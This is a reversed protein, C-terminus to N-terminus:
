AEDATIAYGVGRVTVILRRTGFDELKRRLTSVNADVVNTGPDSDMDWVRSLLTERTQPQDVHLMFHELLRFERPALHIRRGKRFVTRRIRNLELDGVRLLDPLGAGTGRRALARVRALLEEFDFPKTLYDDGGADLGRVADGTSDRATLMLIPTDVGEERLRRAVALGDLKPLMIDLLIVDFERELGLKLGAEGNPAVAVDHGEEALGQRLFRCAGVDDEVVLLRM